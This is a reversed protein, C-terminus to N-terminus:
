SPASQNKSKENRIKRSSLCVFLLFGLVSFLIRGKTDIKMIVYSLHAAIDLPLFSTFVHVTLLIAATLYVILFGFALVFLIREAAQHLSVRSKCLVLQGFLYGGFFYAAPFFYFWYFIIRYYTFTETVEQQAQGYGLLLILDIVFLILFLRNSKKM